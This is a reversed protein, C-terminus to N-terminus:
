SSLYVISTVILIVFTTTSYNVCMCVGVNDIHYIIICVNIYMYVCMYVCM